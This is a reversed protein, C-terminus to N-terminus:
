RHWSELMLARFGVFHQDATLADTLGHQNMVVFSLCDTLSWSKDMRTRFLQMAHNLNEPTAGVLRYPSAGSRFQDWLIIATERELPASFGACIELLVADTTWVERSAEVAPDLQVAVAHFQDRPNFRALAYAADLFLRDSPQGTM